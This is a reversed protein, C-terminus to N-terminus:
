NVTSTSSTSASSDQENNQTQTTKLQNSDPLFPFYKKLMQLLNNAANESLLSTTFAIGLVMLIALGLFLSCTAGALVLGTYMLLKVFMKAIFNIIQKMVRFPKSIANALRSSSQIQPQSTLNTSVKVPNTM